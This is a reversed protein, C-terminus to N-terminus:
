SSSARGKVEELYGPDGCDKGEDMRQSLGLRPWSGMKRWAEIKEDLFHSTQVIHIETGRLKRTQSDTLGEQFCFM